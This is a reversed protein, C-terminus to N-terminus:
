VPKRSLIAEAWEVAERGDFSSHIVQMGGEVMKVRPRCECTTSEEHERLDNVPLTHVTM